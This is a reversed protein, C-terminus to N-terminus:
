YRFPRAILVIPSPALCVAALKFLMDGAIDVNYEVFSDLVSRLAWALMDGEM